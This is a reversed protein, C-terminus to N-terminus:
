QRQTNVWWGLSPNPEYDHPVNCHGYEDRYEQLEYLRRDWMERIGDWKFGIVELREIREKTM